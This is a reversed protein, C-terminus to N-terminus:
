PQGVVARRANVLGFGQTGSRTPWLSGSAHLRARVQDRTLTPNAQWVLAAVGAVVATANSSGGISTVEATRRGTTPVDLYATLEVDGGRHIGCPVGGQPYSVGTVAVV